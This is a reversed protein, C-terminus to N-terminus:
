KIETKTIVQKQLMMQAAQAVVPDMNMSAVAVVRDQRNVFCVCVCVCVCSLEPELSRQGRSGNM